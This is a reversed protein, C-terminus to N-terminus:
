AEPIKLYEKYSIDVQYYWVPYGSATIRIVSM